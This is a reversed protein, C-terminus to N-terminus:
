NLGNRWAQWVHFTCLLLFIGPWNNTLATRECVDKDTNGVSICFEEELDNKGMGEKFLRLLRNLVVTDYDAHVAKASDCATFLMFCILVGHGSKDIAMLIVLLACASCIGFTLDMLVQQKHGFTCAATRMESTSLIIEFHETEGHKHAQYHLCSNLLKPSLPQPKEKQSWKDLNKEAATCQSIGREHSISQYLSSVTFMM